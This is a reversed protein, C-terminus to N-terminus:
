DLKLENEDDDRELESQGEVQVRGSTPDIHYSDNDMEAKKLKIADEAMIDEISEGESQARQSVQGFYNERAEPSMNVLTKELVVEAGQVQSLPDSYDKDGSIESMQFRRMAIKLISMKIMERQMQTFVNEKKQESSNEEQKNKSKLIDLNPM